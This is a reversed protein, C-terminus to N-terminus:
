LAWLIGIVGIIPIRNSTNKSIPIKNTKINRKRAAVACSDMKPDNPADLSKYWLFMILFRPTEPSSSNLDERKPNKIKEQTTTELRQPQQRYVNLLSGRNHQPAPM